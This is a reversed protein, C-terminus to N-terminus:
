TYLDSVKAVDFVHRQWHQRNKCHPGFPFEKDKTPDFQIKTESYM